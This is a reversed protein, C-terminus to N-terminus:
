SGRIRQGVASVAGDPADAPRHVDLRRVPLASCRKPLPRWPPARRRRNSPRDRVSAVRFASTPAICGRLCM